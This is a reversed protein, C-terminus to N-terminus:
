CSTRCVDKHWRQVCNGKWLHLPLFHGKVHYQPQQYHSNTGSDCESRKTKVLFKEM